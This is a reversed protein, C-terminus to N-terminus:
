SYRRSSVFSRVRLLPASTTFIQGPGGFLFAGDPAKKKGCDM